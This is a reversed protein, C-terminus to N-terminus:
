WNFSVGGEFYRKPLPYYFDAWYKSNFVNYVNCFTMFKKWDQSLKLDCLMKRDNPEASALENWRNYYGIVAASLGSKSRYELATNFSQRPKGGGRVTERAVRDEIDNFAAGAKLFLGACLELRSDFEVGQRRYKQFNKMYDQGLANVDRDLADRVDSRYFSLKFWTRPVIRSELATEYVMAREAKIDPNAATNLAPNDNFKWLLPPANFARSIGARVLTDPLNEFHYVIGASPSLAEGFESNDDYRLGLNLDWPSFKFTYNAYPAYAKLGKAQSLYVSSKLTDNDIDAGVVLLDDKRLHFSSNVSLQYLFDRSEVRFVPIDDTVSNYSQTVIKKRFHKLDLKLDAPGYDKEWNIKAYRDFYPQAQWTGDPFEGSNVEAGSYGFSAALKGCGKLDYSFKSFVKKELVDARQGRGGSDMYSSLVYYGLGGAKGSLEAAQKQTRFEAITSTLSGQPVLTQGTDKTVINIVGGLGSGWASSAPGKIVEVRAINELPFEAPNVQGSSQTNLPIGDIMVRVQRSDCGQISVATPRGFGKSPAISVGPIYSLVEGLNRVPLQSIQSQSLIVINESATDLGSASRKNTIVIKELEALYDPSGEQQLQPQDAWLPSLFSLAFGTIM